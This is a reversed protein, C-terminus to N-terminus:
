RGEPLLYDQLQELEQARPCLAEAETEKRNGLQVGM